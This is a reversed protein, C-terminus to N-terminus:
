PNAYGVGTAAMCLELAQDWTLLGRQYAWLLYISPRGDGLAMPPLIQEIRDWHDHLEKESMQLIIM